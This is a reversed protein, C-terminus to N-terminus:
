YREPVERAALDEPAGNTRVTRKPLEVKKRHPAEYPVSRPCGVAGWTSTTPLTLAFGAEDVHCLDM